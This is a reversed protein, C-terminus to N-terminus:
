LQNEPVIKQFWASMRRWVSAQPESTEVVAEGDIMGHWTIRGNEDLKLRYAMKELEAPADAMLSAGMAESDILLGMETNIDVSRPDLNLSGVFIRREDILIGKTHLTLRDLSTEGDAAVIKAADARAEWLEVGAELLGKRYKSYHSHVATHNNTALSNTILVVRIGKERLERVFNMGRERPIFYPTFIIIEEEAARLAKAMAMVVVQYEDSVEALLKQPEDTILRADAIYPPLSKAFFQQMLPTGIADAYISDGAERMAQRLRSLAEDIDRPKNTFLAEMPVALEHNWYTDFQASVERVVPGASLMDFDIFEGTTELQFYEAAINRGGVIAVQNDVIFSKNHMRRNLLKFNGLYNFVFLGNRSIPNFIRVEVNPHSNVTALGADDVTTFIDDLLLRVRVGREAAEMLGAVFVFGADDPKMLFYQVDISADAVEMLALRAGFADKGETLPYFGNVGTRGGLWEEVEYAGRTQSTDEFAVTAEKPVDLPVTACGAILLALVSAVYRSFQKGVRM